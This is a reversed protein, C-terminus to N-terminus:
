GPPPADGLPLTTDGRKDPMTPAGFWGNRRYVNDIRTVLNNMQQLLGAEEARRSAESQQLKRNTEIDSSRRQAAEEDIAKNLAKIQEALAATQGAVASAQAAFDKTHADVRDSLVAVAQVQHNFEALRDDAYGRVWWIFGIVALAAAAVNRVFRWVELLASLKIGNLSVDADM